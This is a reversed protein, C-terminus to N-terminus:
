PTKPPASWPPFEERSLFGDRDTDRRQFWEAAEAPKRAGSFEALTLKGDKDFDPEAFKAARPNNDGAVVGGGRRPAGDIEM